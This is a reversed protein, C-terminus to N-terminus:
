LSQVHQVRFEYQWFSLKVVENKCNIIANATALFPQRFIVLIQLRSNIILATNIVIFDVSFYFNDIHVLVDKVVWKSHKVSKCALKLTVIPPRVEELGYQKYVTYTLINMSADLDLLAKYFNYYCDHIINKSM